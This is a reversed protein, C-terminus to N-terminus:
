FRELKGSRRGLNYRDIIIQAVAKSKSITGHRELGRADGILAGPGGPFTSLKRILADIDLGEGHKLMVAHLGYLVKADVADKTPGWAATLIRVTKELSLGGDKIWCKRMADMCAICGDRKGDSPKLNFMEAIQKAGVASPDGEIVATLYKDHARIPRSYNLERFLKCAGADSTVDTHLIVDAEWDFLDPMKSDTAAKKVAETRHQGDVVWMAITRGRKYEVTHITGLANLDLAVALRNVWGQMLKRQAVPHIRLESFPIRLKKIFSTIKPPM